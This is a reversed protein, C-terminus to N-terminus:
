MEDQTVGVKSNNMLHRDVRSKNKTGNTEKRLISLVSGWKRSGAWLKWMESGNEGM